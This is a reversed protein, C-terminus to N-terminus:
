PGAAGQEIYYAYFYRGIREADHLANYHNFCRRRGAGVRLDPGDPHKCSGPHALLCNDCVPDVRPDDYILRTAAENAARTPHPAPETLRAGHEYAEHFLRPSAKFFRLWGWM